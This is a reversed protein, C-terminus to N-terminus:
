NSTVSFSNTMYLQTSGGDSTIEFGFQVQDLTASSTFSGYQSHDNAIIWDLIAKIDVTGSNTNSTRVFSVVDNSGNTGYFVDWTHGGVNVNTADPIAAGSADYSTAIPAVAGTYNMWLMIEIRSPSSARVWIDYATEYAGGSPVTVDFSSTYTGISGILTGPSLSVNPYSKIGSTNPHNSAIGWLGGTTAWICQPGPRSGWIDNYYTTSGNRWEGYQECSCWDSNIGDPVAGPCSTTVSGTFGGTGSGGTGSGAAGGAGGGSSQAVCEGGECREGSECDQDRVCDVCRHTDSDCVQGDSCDSTEACSGEREGLPYDQDFKALCGQSFNPAIALLAIGIAWLTRRQM